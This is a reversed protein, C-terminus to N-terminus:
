GKIASAMLAVLGVLVVGVVGMIALLTLFVRLKRGKEARIVLSVWYGFAALLSVAFLEIGTEGPLYNGLAVAGLAGIVVLSGLARLLLGGTSM